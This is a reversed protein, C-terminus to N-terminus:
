TKGKTNNTSHESATTSHVRQKELTQLTKRQDIFNEIECLYSYKEKGRRQPAVNVRGQCADTMTSALKGKFRKMKEFKERKL